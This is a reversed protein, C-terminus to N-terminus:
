NVRYNYLFNDRSGVILNFRSLSDGFDGISFPTNGQLPFGEYLEGNNNILYILNENRSVIGIKRDTGSFQYILPKSDISEGFKFSFLKSQNNSFVNLKEDELFIFEPKRDGDLDKFDFFHRNSFKGLEVTKVIGNFGIFYIKGTTDTAVFSPGLADASMNLQYNNNVSRPFYSDAEVRTNGKRDLIYTKFRDGFVLFDKDGIKFHNVPQTVESESQGFEWGDLLTGERTYAYVRKDECAIFLRYDRNGDYDFVSLGCTAPSRFKVPYRDVANGKRDILHIESRTSFMFQLKGNRFYDVQFVESNVPESLRIKWLIRGVQNILYVANNLDQVFVENQRTQHNMVFVPKFNVLTDLKSEWITQATANYATLHKVLFNGHLMDNNAYLQMGM